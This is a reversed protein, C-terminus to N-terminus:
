WHFTQNLKTDTLLCTGRSFKLVEMSVSVIKLVNVSNIIALHITTYQWYRSLARTCCDYLQTHFVERVWNNGNQSCLLLPPLVPIIFIAASSAPPASAHLPPPSYRLMCIHITCIYKSLWTNTSISREGQLESFFSVFLHHFTAITM